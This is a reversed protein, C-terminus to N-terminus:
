NSFFLTPLYGNHVSQFNLDTTVKLKRIVATDCGNGFPCYPDKRKFDKYWLYRRDLTGGKCISEYKCGICEKPLSRDILNKFGCQELKTLIDKELINSQRFESSVLYTSPTISGDPLIRISSLGSPDTKPEDGYTFIASFLPDSLSIIKYHDSIYELAIKIIEFDPIFKRSREDIGSVPRYPNLRIIADYKQALKFLSKINSIELTKNTGIFVITTRMKYKKCFELTQIIWDYVFLNDRSRNHLYKDGFDLSVDVEELCEVVISETASNNKCLESLYGNTTLGQIVHPFKENVYRIIEVWNDCLSNEGTGYNVSNVLHFNDDVFNKYVSM